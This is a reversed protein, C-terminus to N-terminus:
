NFDLFKGVLIEFKLVKSLFYQNRIQENMLDREHKRKLASIVGRHLSGTKTQIPRLEV